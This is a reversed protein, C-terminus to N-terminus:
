DTTEDTKEGTKGEAEGNYKLRLQEVVDVTTITQTDLEERYHKRGYEKFAEEVCHRGLQGAGWISVQLLASSFAGVGHQRLMAKQADMENQQLRHTQVHTKGDFSFSVRILGGDKAFQEKQQRKLQRASLTKNM